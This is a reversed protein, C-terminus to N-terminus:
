SIENGKWHALLCSRDDNPLLNSSYGDLADFLSQSIAETGEILKAAIFKSLFHNIGEIGILNRDNDMIETLGDSYMALMYGPEMVDEQTTFETPEIGLPLHMSSQLARGTGDPAFVMAPPHGANVCELKGTQPDLIMCVMTVFKNEDLFACLHDNLGNIIKILPTDTRIYTHVMSHMSLAILAAPLGHGSVDAVTLFIRGDNMVAADIYDGGVWECPLYNLTVDMQTFTVDKPVLGEQIHRASRLDQEIAAHNQAETRALWTSEAQQYQTAALAVVAMWEATGFEPPFTVYLVDLSTEDEALPCGVAAISESGSAIL